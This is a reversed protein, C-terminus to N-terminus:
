RRRAALIVGSIASVLSVGLATVASRFRRRRGASGEAALAKRAEREASPWPMRAGLLPGTAEAAAAAPAPEPASRDPVSGAAASRRHRVPSGAKAPDAVEAQTQADSSRAVVSNIEGGILLILSMVYIWYVFALVGGLVGYTEVYGAFFTFYVSLGLTAVAWLVVTVVSGPTVWKFATDVNPGAWYFFALAVLVVVAIVPLRLIMWATTWVSGLGLTEALEEGVFSGVLFFSSAAVIVLGLAITLGMAIAYRKWIPRTEEVDFAVNLAKMFAALANKAGWLALLGGLSLFSGSQSQIVTAIPDQLAEASERPLNDFLWTSISGMADDAGVWRSVFGSLATLFILLPVVAFLLHYAVEAALGQLDDKRFDKFTAKAVPVVDVRGIKV